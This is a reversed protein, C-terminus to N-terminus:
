KTLSLGIEILNDEVLGRLAENEKQLASIKAFAGRQINILKKHLDLYEWSSMETKQEEFQPFELQKATM